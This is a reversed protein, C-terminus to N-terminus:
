GLVRAPPDATVGLWEKAVARAAFIEEYGHGDYSKDNLLVDAADVLKQVVDRAPWASDIAGPLMEEKTMDTMLLKEVSELANNNAGVGSDDCAYDSTEIASLAASIAANWHVNSGGTRVPAGCSPCHKTDDTM